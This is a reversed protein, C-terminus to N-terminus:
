LRYGLRAILAAYIGIGEFLNGLRLNEDPAHQNNDHNVIPVIILPVGFAEAFRFLPLSGGLMPVRVVDQPTSADVIDAVAQSMSHDMPTRVSPYGGEWELRILRPAKRRVDASPEADVIEFGQRRIHAEVTRRVHEPTQEPALRFDLAAQARDPIANRAQAGVSGASLGDVNMAPRMIRELLRAKMGRRELLGLLHKANKRIGSADSAVNPLTLLQRLEEVIAAEHARRHAAVAQTVAEATPATSEATPAAADAVAAAFFASLCGAAWAARFSLRM